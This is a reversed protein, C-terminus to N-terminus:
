SRVHFVFDGCNNHILYEQPSFKSVLFNILDMKDTVNILYCTTHFLHSIEDYIFDADALYSDLASGKPVIILLKKM